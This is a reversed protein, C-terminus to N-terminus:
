GNMWLRRANNDESPREIPQGGEEFAGGGGTAGVDVTMAGGASGVNLVGAASTALSSAGGTITILSGKQTRDTLGVRTITGTDPVDGYTILNVDTKDAVIFLENGSVVAQATVLSGSGLNLAFARDAGFDSGALEDMPVNTAAPDVVVGVAFQDASTSVWTAAVPDAYSGSVVVATYRGTTQDFYIAPAAGIPHLDTSFRFIPEGGYLDSGDAEYMWLDGYLSAVAVNSILGDRDVDFLAAGGPIGTDPVAPNIGSRPAPHVQQKWWLKEGNITNIALLYFGSQPSSGGNNTQAVTLNVIQSGFRAVGMALGLGVGLDVAAPSAPTTREWLIIPDAPNSVDVALIAPEDGDTAADGSGTQFTLITRFQGIVVGDAPDFDGFADAVRITGDIRQTNFRLRGLQTRPIFAWLEQGQALCPGRVEACIAHLMGDLAGVYVMTPRDEGAIQPIFNSHPIVAMTSRDIGGLGPIYGGLGDPTGALVRDILVAVDADALTPALLPKIAAQNTTDFFVRAPRVALGDADPADVTTFVTRCTSSFTIGCGSASPTPISGPAGADFIATLADFTAASSGVDAVDVARLHGRRHPFEFTAADAADEFTTVPPAPTVVEYTGQYQAEVGGVEFVIPSSRSRELPQAQGPSAAAGLFALASGVMVLGHKM